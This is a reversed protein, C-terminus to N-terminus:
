ESVTELPAIKELFAELTHIKNEILPLAAERINAGTVQTLDTVANLELATTSTMALVVGIAAAFVGVSVGSCGAGFDNIMIVMSILMGAIGCEIGVIGMILTVISAVDTASIGAKGAFKSHINNLTAIQNNIITKIEEAEATDLKNNSFYTDLATLVDNTLISKKL